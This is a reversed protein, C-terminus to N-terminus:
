RLAAYDVASFDRVSPTGCNLVGSLVGEVFVSRLKSRMAKSRSPVTKPVGVFWTMLGRTQAANSAAWLAPTAMATAEPRGAQISPSCIGAAGHISQAMVQLPVRTEPYRRESRSKALPNERSSASATSVHRSSSPPLALMWVLRAESMSRRWRVWMAESKSFCDASSPSASGSLGM